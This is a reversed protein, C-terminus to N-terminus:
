SGGGQELGLHRGLARRIGLSTRFCIIFTPPAMPIPITVGTRRPHFANHASHQRLFLTDTLSSVGRLGGNM